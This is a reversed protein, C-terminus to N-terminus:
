QLIFSLWECNNESLCGIITYPETRVMSQNVYIMQQGEGQSNSYTSYNIIPNSFTQNQYAVAFSDISGWHVRMHPYETTYLVNTYSYGSYSVLYNGNNDQPSNMYLTLKYYNPEQEEEEVVNNLADWDGCGFVSILIIFLYKIM